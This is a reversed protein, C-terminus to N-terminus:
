DIIRGVLESLFRGKCIGSVCVKGKCEANSGCRCTGSECTGSTLSDCMPNVGCMCGGSTCTDSLGTCDEMRSCVLIHILDFIYAGILRSYFLRLVILSLISVKKAYRNTNEEELQESQLLILTPHVEKWMVVQHHM